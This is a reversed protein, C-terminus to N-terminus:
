RCYNALWPSLCQSNQDRRTFTRVVDSVPPRHLVISILTAYASVDGTRMNSRM